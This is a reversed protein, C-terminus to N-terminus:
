DAVVVRDRGRSKAEYLARDAAEILEGALTSANAAEVGADSAVGVSVTIRLQDGEPTTFTQDAAAERLKEAALRAGESDTDPIVLLFEEGGYRGLRDVVRTREQMMRGIRRLVEDGFPHGWTDNISKFHDLDIMCVSLPTGHEITRQCELELQRLVAKRRLLGTLEEYTADRFLRLNEFSVAIQHSFLNLLELEERVFLEGNRKGALCLIGVVRERFYLPVVVELGIERLRGGLEPEQSSLRQVTVPRHKGSGAFLTTSTLTVLRSLERRDVGPAGPSAEVLLDSERDGVVGVASWHVGFADRTEEALEASLRPLDQHETLAGAVRILRRRLAHREPFLGREVLREIGRRMPQFLIGLVVAVATVLWVTGTEDLHDRITPLAATLVAYLLALLLIAAVGYAFGRRVLLEVDFLGYRFIAVFVAVPFALLLLSELITAWENAVPYWGPGLIQIAIHCVWPLVGLLVLYAQNRRRPEDAAVSQWVLIGLVGLAWGPLILNHVDAFTGVAGPGRTLEYYFSGVLALAGALGVLYYGPVVWGRRRILPLRDPILSVLHLYLGIQAGSILMWAVALPVRLEGTPSYSDPASLEVAVLAVFLTILWARLDDHRHRAALVGLGLFAGVLVLQALIATLDPTVGPAFTFRLREGDRFVTWTVERDPQVHEEFGRTLDVPGEIPEGALAVIVDGARIGARAAPMNEPALTVEVGRETQDVVIGVRHGASEIEELVSWTTFWVVVALVLLAGLRFWPLRSATGESTM